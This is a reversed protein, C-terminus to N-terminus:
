LPAQPDACTMFAPNDHENYPPKLALHAEEHRVIELNMAYGADLYIRNPFSTLGVADGISGAPAIFWEIDAFEKGSFQGLKKACRSVETYQHKYWGEPSLRSAGFVYAYDPASACCACSLITLALLWLRM